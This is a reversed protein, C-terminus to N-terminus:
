SSGRWVLRQPQDAYVNAIRVSIENVMVDDLEFQGSELWEKEAQPLYYSYDRQKM